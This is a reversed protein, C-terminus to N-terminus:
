APKYCTGEKWEVTTTTKNNWGCNSCKKTTKYVLRMLEPDYYGSKGHCCPHEGNAMWISYSTENCANVSMSGCNVCQAGCLMIDDEDAFLSTSSVFVMALSLVAVSLKKILNM